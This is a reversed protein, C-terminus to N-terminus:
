PFPNLDWGQGQRYEMDKFISFLVMKLDIEIDEMDREIKKIEGWSVGEIDRRDLEKFAELGEKIWSIFSILEEIKANDVGDKKVVDWLQNLRAHDERMQVILTKMCRIRYAPENCLDDLEHTM